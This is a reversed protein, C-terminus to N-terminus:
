PLYQEAIRVIEDHRVTIWFPPSHGRFDLMIELRPLGVGVNKTASGTYGAALTNVTITADSWGRPEPFSSSGM